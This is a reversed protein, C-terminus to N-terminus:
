LASVLTVPIGNSRQMVQEHGEKAYNNITQKNWTSQEQPEAVLRVWTEGWGDLKYMDLLSVARPGQMHPEPGSSNIYSTSGDQTEQRPLHLSTPTAVTYPHGLSAYIFQSAALLRLVAKSIPLYM